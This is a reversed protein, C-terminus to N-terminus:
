GVDYSLTSLRVDASDRQASLFFLSGAIGTFLGVRRAYPPDVRSGRPDMTLMRIAERASERGDEPGWREVYGRTQQLLARGLDGHCLSLGGFASGNLRVRLADLDGEHGVHLRAELQGTAGWCWSGSLSKQQQEVDGRKEAGSLIRAELDFCDELLASLEEEPEMASLALAVGSLGHALGPDVRDDRVADTLLDTLGAVSRERMGALSDEGLIGAIRQSALLIGAAGNLYDHSPSSLPLTDLAACILTLRERTGRDDLLRAGEALALAAGVPGEGLGLMMQEGDSPSRAEVFRELARLLSESTRRYLEAARENELAAAGSALVIGALGDYLGSRTVMIEHRSPSHQISSAWWLQDGTRQVTESLEAVLDDIMRVPNASRPPMSDTRQSPDPASPATWDPDELGLQISRRLLFAQGDISTSDTVTLFRETWLAFADGGTELSAGTGSVIRSGHFDLEFVPVCGEDLQRSEEQRIWGTQQHVVQEAAARARHEGKVQLLSVFSATSRTLVRCRLSTRREVLSLICSRVREDSLRAAAARFGAELDAVHDAFPARVSDGHPQSGFIQAEPLREYTTQLVGDRRSIRRIQSQRAPDAFAGLASPDYPEADEYRKAWNPVLLTSLISPVPRAFYGDAAASSPSLGVGFACEADILYPFEDSCKVNEYHLDQMGLASAVAVLGGFRRYYASRGDRTTVNEFVVYEQWGHDGRDITRPVRPLDAIDLADLIERLVTDPALSRPKFVAVPRGDSYVGLVAGRTHVDGLIKLHSVSRLREAVWSGSAQEQVLRESFERAARIFISRLRGTRPILDGLDLRSSHRSPSDALRDWMERGDDPVIEGTVREYEDAAATSLMTSVQAVFSSVFAGILAGDGIGASRREIVALEAGLRAVHDWALLAPWNHREQDGVSDIWAQPTLTQM